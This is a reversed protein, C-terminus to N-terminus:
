LAHLNLLDNLYVAVGDKENSSTVDNAINKAKDIGNGMAIGRGAFELMELDNDEDGFAIIREPPIQLYDSARKLGVAKNLGSKIVEIVHWPAAWSRHDIVEAHVESLHDCISDIHDECSQILMSTPSANLFRRLDGTTIKPNGFGYIGILKEDHNHLYVDDIVEAVINQFPFSDLAEVIDMAVSMELPSHYIGWHRDTPHHVFAGNFNVIPTDLELERYYMESSRYPRGTAIMVLHGQERALKLVKKTNPSITKADTLLTGDLDLVILHKKTM